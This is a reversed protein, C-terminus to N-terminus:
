LVTGNSRVFHVHVLWCWSCGTDPCLRCRLLRFGRPGWIRGYQFAHLTSCRAVDRACNMARLLTM